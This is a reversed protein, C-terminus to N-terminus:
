LIRPTSLLHYANLRYEGHDDSDYLEVSRGDWGRSGASIREPSGYDAEKDGASWDSSSSSDMDEYRGLPKM